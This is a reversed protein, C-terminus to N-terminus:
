WLYDASIVHVPNCAEIILITWGWGGSVTMISMWAAICFDIYRRLPWHPLGVGLLIYVTMSTGVLPFFGMALAVLIFLVLGLRSVRM